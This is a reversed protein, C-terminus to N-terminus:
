FVKLSKFGNIKPIFWKKRQIAWPLKKKKILFKAL